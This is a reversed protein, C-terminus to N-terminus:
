VSTLKLSAPMMGEAVATILIDGTTEASRIIALLRGEFSMRQSGRYPETSCPDSNGLVQLHGCGAVAVTVPRDPTRVRRGSADVVTVTVYALDTGDARLPDKKEPQLKLAHAPGPTELVSAGLDKDNDWAEARLQGPEYPLEFTCQYGQDVTCPRSGILSGNLYLRVEPANAYIVAQVVAGIHEQWDWFPLVEPWGWASVAAKSQDRDPRLVALYPQRTLGWVRKRLALQPRAFGSIDYDGCNAQHWPYRGLFEKNDDYWVHGIGAEGLYDLATWVFDGIVHPMKEIATWLEATQLPFSEAGCIVREPFKEADAAYRQLLYNYGVVDLPKVFAATREGWHDHDSQTKILNSELNNLEIAGASLGNLANTVPRTSDRERIAKALRASWAYGQNRGDREPIENGTSWIIVSPHNRDRRVMADLDKQWDREFVMHYDYPNKGEQWCDCLEDMVLMGLRDCADLFAPAPPNHACRVANYGAAKLLRVKREEAAAFSAAGLPGNDHHICGGRLKLPVGNLTLGDRASIEVLRLGCTTERLLTESDGTVHYLQLTYLSPEDPSWGIPQNVLLDLNLSYKGSSCSAQDFEFGTYSDPRACPNEDVSGNYVYGIPCTREDAVKGRPDLLVARIKLVDTLPATATVKAEVTLTAERPSWEPTYLFLDWPEIDIPDLLTLWVPRYIGTGSYWRSNPQATNSVLVKIQNDGARRLHPTADVHFTTYGYHQRGALRGNIRIEAMQYIGEFTLWVRRGRWDPDTPLTKEYVLNLGPFYGGGAGSAADPQRDLCISADHPLDVATKESKDWWESRRSVLWGKNLCIQKM